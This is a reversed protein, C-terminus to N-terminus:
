KGNPLKSLHENLKERQDFLKKHLYEGLAYYMELAHHIEMKDVITKVKDLPSPKEKSM